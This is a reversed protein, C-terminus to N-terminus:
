RALFILPIRSERGVEEKYWAAERREEETSGTQRRPAGGRV